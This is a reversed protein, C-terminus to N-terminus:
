RWRGDVLRYEVFGKFRVGDIISPPHDLVLFRGEVRLPFTDNISQSKPL